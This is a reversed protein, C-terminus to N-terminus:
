EIYSSREPQGRVITQLCSLLFVKQRCGACSFHQGAVTAGETQGQRPGKGTAVGEGVSGQAGARKPVSNKDKAVPDSSTWVIM